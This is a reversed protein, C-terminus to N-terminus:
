LTCISEIMLKM